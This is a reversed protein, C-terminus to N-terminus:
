SMAHEIGAFSDMKHFLLRPSAMLPLVTWHTSVPVQVAPTVSKVFLRQLLIPEVVGRVELANKRRMLVVMAPGTWRFLQDASPLQERFFTAFRQLIVDGFQGGLSQNLAEVQNIVVIVVFASVEDQCCQAIADEAENRPPFGTVADVALAEGASRVQSVPPIARHLQAAARDTEARQREAEVLVGDLYQCLRGKLTRIERVDVAAVLQGKVEQLRRISESSSSGVALIADTLMRVKAQLEAVPSQLYEVAEQNHQKMADVARAARGMLEDQPAGTVLAAIVPQTAECLLALKGPAGEVSHREIGEILLRILSVLTEETPRDQITTEAAQRDETQGSAQLYRRISIV